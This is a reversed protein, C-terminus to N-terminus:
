LIFLISLKQISKNWKLVGNKGGREKYFFFQKLNSHRLIFGSICISQKKKGQNM